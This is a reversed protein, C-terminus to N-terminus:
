CNNGLVRDWFKLHNDMRSKPWILKHALEGMEKIRIRNNNLYEIRDAVCRFDGIPVIYGNEGDIIDERVGSTDTVIPVAGGGMIEAISISRGEYDAVNLGIDQNKWFSRMEDKPVIGLFRIRGDLGNEKIFLEMQERAPGEGAISACFDIGREDITKLVELLVDMRKQYGQFGDLRGAYGIRLPTNQEISYERNIVEDCPFPVKMSVVNDIGNSKMIREIDKSVGIYLDSRIPFKIYEDFICEQAGSIISIIHIQDPFNEKYFCAALLLEDPQNTVVTCPLKDKLCAILSNVNAEVYGYKIDTNIIHDMLFDDIDIRGDSHKTVIYADISREKLMVTCLQKVREEIGGLIMGNLLGFYVRKKSSYNSKAYDLDTQFVENCRNKKISEYMLTNYLIQNRDCFGYKVELISKIDAVTNLNAMTICFKCHKFKSLEELGNVRYDGIYTGVKQSNSDFISAVELNIDSSKLAEVLKACRFGAGYLIISSNGNSKSIMKIQTHRRALM